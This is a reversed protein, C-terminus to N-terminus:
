SALEQSTLRQDTTSLDVKAIQKLCDILQADPHNRLDYGLLLISPTNKLSTHYTNNIVYQVSELCSDWEQLEDVLKQLSSTLFRNVREVMGNAWPAAVAVLVHKVNRSQLFKEFERSIFGTGRDSILTQPNGFIIFLNTLHIIVETSGVTKVPFLWTFRTFADVVLLIHKFGKETPDIPGFHDIHIIEFPKTVKSTIQMEGERSNPAANALLCIICNEIYLHVRKRLSPFWYNALIGQITKEPGCHACDDHYIRLINMVMAEPIYFRPKDRGKRFVLGNILEYKKHDSHELNEAIEKITPDKLQRYELEREIPLVSVLAFVRSLADVHMM